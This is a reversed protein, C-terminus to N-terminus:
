AAARLRGGSLRHALHVMAAVGVIPAIINVIPVTLLFTTAAGALWVVGFNAQRLGKVTRDDVRRLAVLEFYERSILYGNLGYFVILNIVPILYLPLVLLNLVVTLLAIRVGTWLMEAMPQRRPAPLHPYHRAEVADAVDELFIGIIASVVGPFFLLALVFVGVGGLVDVATDWLGPLVELAAFGWWLAVILLAYVAVTAALSIWIIKRVRPDSLQAFAKFFASIM